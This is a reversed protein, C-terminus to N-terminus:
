SAELERCTELLYTKLKPGNLPLGLKNRIIKNSNNSTAKSFHPELDKSYLGMLFLCCYGVEWQTLDHEKLFAVFKPHSAMFVTATSVIFQDRNQLLEHISKEAAKSDVPNSTIHGLLVKDLLALREGVIKRTEENMIDSEKHATELADREKQLLDYKQTLDKLDFESKKWAKRLYHYLAYGLVLLVAIATILFYRLRQQKLQAIQTKYREEMFRTDSNMVERITENSVEYAKKQMDLAKQIEGQREYVDALRMFYKRDLNDQHYRAYNGLVYLASDLKGSAVHADSISLWPRLSAEPIETFCANKLYEVYATDQREAAVGIRTELYQARLPSALSDWEPLLVDLAKDADDLWGLNLYDDALSIQSLAYKYFYENEKFFSSSKLDNEKASEYDMLEKYIASKKLYLHGATYLDNAQQIMPEGRALWEMAAERDGANHAISAMYYCVRLRDKVSGLYKYYDVAPMILSDSTVLISNRDLAQSILLSYYARQSKTNLDNKDISQLIALSSDPHHMMLCDARKLETDLPRNSTCSVVILILLISPIIRRM